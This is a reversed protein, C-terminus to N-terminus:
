SLSLAPSRKSGVKTNHVVGVEGGCQAVHKPLGLDVAHHLLGLLEAPLILLVLGLDLGLVAELVVAEGHTQPGAVM